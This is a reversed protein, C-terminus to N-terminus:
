VRYMLVATINDAGGRAKAFDTEWLDDSAYIDEISWKYEAPVEARSTIRDSM